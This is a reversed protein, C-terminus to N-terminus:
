CLNLNGSTLTASLLLIDASRKTERAVFSVDLVVLGSKIHDGVHWPVHIETAVPWCSDDCSCELDAGVLWILRGNQVFWAGRRLM